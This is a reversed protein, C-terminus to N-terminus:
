TEYEGCLIAYGVIQRTMQIGLDNVPEVLTVLTQDEITATM